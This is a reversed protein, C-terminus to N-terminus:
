RGELLFLSIEQLSSREHLVLYRMEVHHKAEKIDNISAVEGSFPPGYAEGRHKDGEAGLLLSKM